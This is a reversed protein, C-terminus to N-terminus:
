MFDIILKLQCDRSERKKNITWQLSALIMKIHEPCNPLGLLALTNNVELGKVISLLSDSQIPNNWMWLKVLCTNRELATTIVNWSDDTIDNDTIILEKLTNNNVLAMFISFVGKSSLKTDVLSLCELGAFSNTTKSHLLKNEGISHNGDIKLKKINFTIVIDSILCSSVETLGNYSLQVTAFTTTPKSPFLGRHLVHMGSDQIYCNYLNLEQWVKNVSSVLFLSLCKMDIDTLKTDALDISQGVFTQSQELSSCMETCGAENFCYYLRLFKLKELVKNKSLFGKFSPQQGKTLAIYTSFMNFYHDDWFKEELIKLEVAHTSIYHAALFEQISYHIFNYTTCRSFHKVEQLLGFYQLSQLLSFGDQLFGFYQVSQLLGFGDRCAERIEDYTFFCKKTNLGELSLKGLQQVITNYPESLDALKNIHIGYKSLHHSISYCVLINCLETSNKPLPLKHEYLYLLTAVNFPVHCNGYFLPQNTIHHTLDSIKHPQGKLVMNIYSKIDEAVFGVIEVKTTIHHQLVESAHPRSSVLLGCHPLTKRKLINGILGDKQLPKSIEDYGDLLICIDKGGNKSLSYVCSSTNKKAVKTDRQCFLQLLQNFDSVKQVAPDRLHVFVVLRFSQLIQKNAWRYAIEKLITTKGIGAEGEILVYKHNELSDIILEIGKTTKSEKLSQCSSTNMSNHVITLQLFIKPQGPPWAEEDFKAYRERAWNSLTMLDIGVIICKRNSAICYLTYVRGKDFTSLDSLHHLISTVLFIKHHMIVNYCVLM